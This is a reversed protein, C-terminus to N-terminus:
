PLVKEAAEGFADGVLGLLTVVREAGPTVRHLGIGVEDDFPFLGSGCRKCHYYGRRFRITGLLSEVPIPRYGKFEAPQQCGPCTV